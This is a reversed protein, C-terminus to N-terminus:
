RALRMSSRQYEARGMTVLALRVIPRNRAAPLLSLATLHGVVRLVGVRRIIPLVPTLSGAPEGAHMRRLPVRSFEMNQMATPSRIVEAVRRAAAGRDALFSLRGPVLLFEWAITV